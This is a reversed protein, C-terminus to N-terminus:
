AGLSHLVDATINAAAGFGTVIRGGEIELRFFAFDGLTTIPEASPFKELYTARAEAQLAEDESAARVTGRLTARKVQLPDVDATDLEHVMADFPAGEALGRTHRALRSAHVILARRDATVAFPLLGIVPQDEVLVALSLVRRETLLSRLVEVQQSQM